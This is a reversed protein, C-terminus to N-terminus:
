DVRQFLGPYTVVFGEADVTIDRVFGGYLSEFRYEHKSLCTYRQREQTVTLEPFSVYTVDIEASQGVALALRRIPLTNTLPTATLDVYETGGLHVSGGGLVALHAERVRWDPDLKLTCTAAFGGSEAGAIVVSEVDMGNPTSRLEVHELGRGSWDRWRIAM